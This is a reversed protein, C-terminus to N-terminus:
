TCSFNSFQASHSDDIFGSGRYQRVAHVLGVSFGNGNKIPHHCKRHLAECNLASETLLIHRIANGHQTSFLEQAEQQTRGKTTHRSRVPRNYQRLRM